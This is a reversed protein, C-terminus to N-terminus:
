HEIGSSFTPVQVVSRTDFVFQHNKCKFCSIPAELRSALTDITFAGEQQVSALFKQIEPLDSENPSIIKYGSSLDKDQAILDFEYTKDGTSINIHYNFDM